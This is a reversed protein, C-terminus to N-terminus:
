GQVEATIKILKGGATALALVAGLQQADFELTIKGSGDNAVTLWKASSNQGSLAAYFETKM